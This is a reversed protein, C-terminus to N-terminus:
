EVLQGKMSRVWPFLYKWILWLGIVFLIAQGILMATRRAKDEQLNAESEEGPNADDEPAAGTARRELRARKEEQMLQEVRLQIYTAKTKNEDGQSKAIAKTWLADNIRNDRLEEAVTQYFKEDDMLHLANFARLRLLGSSFTLAQGPALVSV